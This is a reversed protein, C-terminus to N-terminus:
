TTDSAAVWMLYLMIYRALEEAWVTASGFRRLVIQMFIVLVMTSLCAILFAKEFYTDLWKLFKM